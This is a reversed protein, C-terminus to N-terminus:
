IEETNFYRNVIDYRLKPNDACVLDLVLRKLNKVEKTLNHLQQEKEKEKKEQPTPVFIVAGSDPDIYKNPM